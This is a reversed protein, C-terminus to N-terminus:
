VASTETLMIPGAQGPASLETVCRRGFNTQQLSFLSRRTEIFVFFMKQCSVSLSFRNGFLCIDFINLVAATERVFLKQFRELHSIPLLLMLTIM